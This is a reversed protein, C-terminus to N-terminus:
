AWEMDNLVLTWLPESHGRTFQQKGGKQGMVTQIQKHKEQVLKLLIKETLIM